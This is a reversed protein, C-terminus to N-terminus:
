LTIEHEGEAYGHILTSLLIQYPINKKKAKAKIKILDLQNLRITVPKTTNLETYREAAKQLMERTQELESDTVSQYEGKELAEEILQEEEDLVLNVFPDFKKSKRKM